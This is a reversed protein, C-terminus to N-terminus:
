KSAAYLTKRLFVNIHLVSQGNGDQEALALDVTAYRVGALIHWLMFTGSLLLM